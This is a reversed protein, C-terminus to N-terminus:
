RRPDLPLLVFPLSPPLVFSVFVRDGAKIPIQRGHDEVTMSRTVERYSGFTGNLRIGEMCYHLIKDDAEPTDLKALRNLEPLHKKGLDSLYYDM